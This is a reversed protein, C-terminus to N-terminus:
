RKLYNAFDLKQLEVLSRRHGAGTDHEEVTGGVSYYLMPKQASSSWLDVHIRKDLSSAPILDATGVAYHGLDRFDKRHHHVPRHSPIIM